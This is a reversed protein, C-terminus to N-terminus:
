CFSNLASPTSVNNIEIDGPCALPTLEGNDDSTTRGEQMEAMISKLTEGASLGKALVLFQPLVIEVAQMAYSCSVFTTLVHGVDLGHMVLYLGYWFGTVFLVVAAFKMVGFQLANARAQILYYRTISKATLFYQWVEHDEGNFAKVTNIASVATNAYKSARSLERKQQEIAAGVPRSIVAFIGAAIPFTAFIVLALKWSFFLATGISAIIATTELFLM